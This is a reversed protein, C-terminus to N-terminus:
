TMETNLPEPGPSGLPPSATADAVRLQTIPSKSHCTCVHLLRSCKRTGTDALVATAPKLALVSAVADRARESNAPCCPHCQKASYCSIRQGCWCVDLWRTSRWCTQLKFSLEFGQLMTHESAVVAADFLAPRLNFGFGSVHGACRCNRELHEAVCFLVVVM